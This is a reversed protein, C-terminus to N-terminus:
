NGRLDDDLSLGYLCEYERGLWHKAFVRLDAFDIFRDRNLDEALLVEGAQWKSAFLAFDVFDVMDNVDNDLNAISGVNSGSMSAEATGGYVGMNIRKGHPWLEGTWDSNPDGTDICLSTVNDNVWTQANPEWRGAESKLHYDGDIWVDDAPNGPTACPDDWYGPDAFCPDVSIDGVGPLAWGGYDGDLNEYLNNYSINPESYIAYIGSGSVSNCIINNTIVPSCGQGCYVAGGLGQAWNGVIINSSIEGGCSCLGGGYGASNESIICNTITGYCDVLGGGDDGASNGRITCGSIAGGCSCLGGGHDDARNGSIICNTIAGGCFRLGGGGYGASNESIICNTITGYCDVLGGGNWRASNGSITCNTITGDCSCLGGGDGDASNESITCNTINGDCDYLGGGDDVDASNGSITCNTISGGGYIGGGDSAHNDTIICRYITPTSGEWCCIGAGYKANGGTITFGTIMSNPGEDRHFSVVSGVGNADIITTEVTNPDNPDLGTVTISKGRFDVNEYYRGPNVLVVDGDRAANIADQINNFDEFANQDVIITDASAGCVVLGVLLLIRGVWFAFTHTKM